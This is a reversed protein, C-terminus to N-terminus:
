IEISNNVAYKAMDTTMGLSLLFGIFDIKNKRKINVMIIKVKYKKCLKINQMIKALYSSSEFGGLKESKEFERFDIGIAVDNDKAIKCLVHNLGSDRQKLKDKKEFLNSFILVDAKRSELIKRNFEDDKAIVIKIGNDFEKTTGKGFKNLERLAQIITKENIVEMTLCIFCVKYVNM